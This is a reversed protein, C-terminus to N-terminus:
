PVFFSFYFTQETMQTVLINVKYVFKFASEINTSKTSIKIQKVSVVLMYMSTLAFIKEVM